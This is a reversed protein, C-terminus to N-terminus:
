NNGCHVTKLEDLSNFVEVIAEEIEAAIERLENNSKRNADVDVYMKMSNHVQVHYKQLNNWANSNVFSTNNDEQEKMWKGLNCNTHPTIDWHTYNGLKNFNSDKFKIHAYKMKTIENLLQVDCVSNKYKPDITTHKSANLLNSALNSVESALNDINSASSANEQTLNDLANIADNIQTIGTSQERAGSSVNDIMSKTENIKENLIHYGEIMSVAINKGESAKENASQVLEKIENAAEASRSALNRVEQAVVAFGKGAEGATAAEVAANLSLINTQFAIQDIVVIAENIATVKENIDEMSNSTQTALKQGTTAHTTIEDGLKSMHSIQDGSNQINSTIEEVAAATEELSAAQSNSSEALHRSSQTLVQTNNTLSVGANSIQALLESVTVGLLTTSNMLSSFDGYIGKLDEQTPKYTFDGSGYNSLITNLVDFKRKAEKIMTNINNRLHEIEKSAANSKVSYGYFGNAVKGMIDDIENVVVRDTEIINKTVEIKQNMQTAMQAIEDKGRVYIPEIEDKERISYAMFNELGQQFEQLSTVIRKTILPSVILIIIIGSLSITIITIASFTAANKINNVELLLNKALKDDVAKLKNIKKTITTFWHTSDIGFGGITNADMALFRLNEVELVSEGKITSNYYKIFSPRASAMFSKLFSNQETILKIWKEKMGPLFKNRAFSNSGVAREIGAREKAMLFNYFANLDKAENVNTAQKSIIQIIDLFQGNMQTYYSIAENAPIKLGSVKTRMTEIKKISSLALNINTKLFPTYNNTNFSKLKQQLKLIRDNVLERQKTIKSTFKKGNSGIFGATMGREKQTEHLLNSIIGALTAADKIKPSSVRLNDRLHNEVKKLLGIKKTITNFWYEADMNFGGVETAQQMIARIRNVEEIDSGSVMKNYYKKDEDSAYYLFTKTYSNQASILNNLKERMGEGFTDRSLTNAGVAREIGAREKALLFSSYATIRQTIIADDSLKAIAVINDLFMGNMKTYYGIANATLIKMNDVKKRISQINEFMKIAEDIRTKFEEPYNSFDTSIIENKLIVFQKNSLERQSPLKDAFKKGKSGLFGATM